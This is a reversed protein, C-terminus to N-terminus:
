DTPMNVLNVMHILKSLFPMNGNNLRRVWSFNGLEMDKCKRYHGTTKLLDKVNKILNM